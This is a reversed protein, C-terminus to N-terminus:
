INSVKKSDKFYNLKFKKSYYKNIYGFSYLRLVCKKYNKLYRRRKKIRDSKFKNLHVFLNLDFGKVMEIIDYKSVKYNLDTCLFNNIFVYRNLILFRSLLLSGVINLRILVLELRNYFFNIFYKLNTFFFNYKQLRNYTM